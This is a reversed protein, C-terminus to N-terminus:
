TETPLVQAAALNLVISITNAEADLGIPTDVSDGVDDGLECGDEDWDLTLEIDVTVTESYLVRIPTGSAVAVGGVSANLDALTLGLTDLDISNVTVADTVGSFGQFTICEEDDILDVDVDVESNNIIDFSGKLVLTAGPVIIDEDNDWHDMTSATKDLDITVEDDILVDFVGARVLQSEKGEFVQVYRALTGTMACTSILVLALLIAATRLIKNRKM